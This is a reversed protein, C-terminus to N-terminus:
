AELKYVSIEVQSQVVKMTSFTYEGKDKLIHYARDSLLVDWTGATDEGLKSAINVADGFLDADNINLINGYDIGASIEIDYDGARRSNEGKLVKHIDIVCRLADDTSEFLAFTNDALFKILQGHNRILSMSVVDQMRKIMSLYFVIGQEKTVRSFHSMDIVLVAKTQGFLRWIEHDVDDKSMAMSTDTLSSLLRYLRPHEIINM